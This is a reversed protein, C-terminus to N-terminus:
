ISVSHSKDSHMDAQLHTQRNACHMRTHSVRKLFHICILFSHIWMNVKAYINNHKHLTNWDDPRGTCEDNQRRVRMCVCVCMDTYTKNFHVICTYSSNMAETM